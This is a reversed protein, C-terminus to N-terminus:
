STRQQSTQGRKSHGKDSTESYICLSVINIRVKHGDITETWDEQAILPVVALILKAAHTGNEKLTKLVM